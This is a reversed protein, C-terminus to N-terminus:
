SRREIRNPVVSPAMVRAYLTKASRSEMGYELIAFRGLENLKSCPTPPTTMVAAISALSFALHSLRRLFQFASVIPLALIKM